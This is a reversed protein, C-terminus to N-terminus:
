RSEVAQADVVETREFMPGDRDASHNSSTGAIAVWAALAVCLAIEVWIHYSAFVSQEAVKPLEQTSTFM